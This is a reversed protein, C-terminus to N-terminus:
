RATKFSMQVSVGKSLRGTLQNREFRSGFTITAQSALRTALEFRAGRLELANPSEVKLREAIGSAVLWERIALFVQAYSAQQDFANMTTLYASSGTLSTGTGLTEMALEGSYAEVSSVRSRTTVDHEALIGWRGFGLRTYGGIV